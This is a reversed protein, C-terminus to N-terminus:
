KWLEFWKKKPAKLLNLQNELVFIKEQLTNVLRLFNQREESHQGIMRELNKAFEKFDEATIYVKDEHKEEKKQPMEVATQEVVKEAVQEAVKETAKVAAEEERKQAQEIQDVMPEVKYLECLSEQNIMYNFGQPTSSRKHRLKRSKIARRITQVSKGSLESAEQITIYSKIAM